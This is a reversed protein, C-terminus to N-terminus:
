RFDLERTFLFKNASNAIEPLSLGARLDALIMGQLLSAMIATSIGKGSIDAIVVALNEDILDATFFDGGIEKCSLNRGTVTAFYPQPIKAAMLGQQIFAAAELEKEQSTRLENYAQALKGKAM